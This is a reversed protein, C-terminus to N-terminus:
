RKFRPRRAPHRHDTQRPPRSHLDLRRAGPDPRSRGSISSIRTEEQAFMAPWNPDPEMLTIQANHPARDGITVAALYDESTQDQSPTTM